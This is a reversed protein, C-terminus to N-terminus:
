ARFDQFKLGMNGDPAGEILKFGLKGYFLKANENKTDLGVWVGDIGLTQLHEVARAILKRGWGQKQHSPLIDIHLHAPSFAIAAPDATHMNELLKKYRADAEKDNDSLPYKSVLSPWWTESAAKEFLRTDSSALIYGVVEEGEVLVFGFTSPLHTYPIAYVLGPLEPYHHLHEASSGAQATLLCIRSLAPKDAETVPQITATM